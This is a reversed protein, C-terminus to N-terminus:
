ETIEHKVKFIHVQLIVLFQVAERSKVSSHIQFFKNVKVKYIVILKLKILSYELNNLSIYSSTKAESKSRLHM